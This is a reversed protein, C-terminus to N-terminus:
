QIPTLMRGGTILTGSRSYESLLPLLLESLNSAPQRPYDRSLIYHNYDNVQKVKQKNHLLYIADFM